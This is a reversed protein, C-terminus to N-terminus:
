FLESNGRTVTDSPQLRSRPITHFFALVYREQHRLQGCIRAQSRVEARFLNVEEVILGKIGEISDEVEFGFDFKKSCFWGHVRILADLHVSMKASLSTPPIMGYISTLTIWLMKAASERPHTLACCEPFFILLWPIQTRSFPRSPSKLSTPFHNFINKLRNM